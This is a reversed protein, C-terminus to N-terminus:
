KNDQDILNAKLDIICDQIDYIIELQEFIYDHKGGQWAYRYNILEHQKM